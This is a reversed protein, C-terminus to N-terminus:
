ACFGAVCLGSCCQSSMTCASGSPLCSAAQAATPATVSIIVPVAIAAAIKSKQIFERRSMQALEAPLALHEQLLHYRDLQALAYWVMKESIPSHLEAQLQRAIDAVSTKGDCRKWVLAATQNLCHAKDRDTDYVLTEDSFDKIILGKVRAQPATQEAKPM